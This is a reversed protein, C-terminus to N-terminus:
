EFDFLRMTEGRCRRRSVQDDVRHASITRTNNRFYGFVHYVVAPIHSFRLSGFQSVVEGEHHETRDWRRMVFGELLAHGIQLAHVCRNKDSIGLRSCCGADTGRNPVGPGDMQIAGILGLNHM